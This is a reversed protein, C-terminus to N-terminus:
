PMIQEYMTHKKESFWGILFVQMDYFKWCVICQILVEQIEGEKLLVCALIIYCKFYLFILNLVFLLYYLYSFYIMINCM